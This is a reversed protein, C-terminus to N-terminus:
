IIKSKSSKNRAGPDYTSFYRRILAVRGLSFFIKLPKAELKTTKRIIIPKGYHSLSIIKYICVTCNGSLPHADSAILILVCNSLMRCLKWRKVNTSVYIYIVCWIIESSGFITRLTETYAVTSHEIWKRSDHKIWCHASFDIWDTAFSEPFFDLVNQIEWKLLTRIHTLCAFRM